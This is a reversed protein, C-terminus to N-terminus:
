ILGLIDVLNLIMSKGSLDLSRGMFPRERDDLRLGAGMMGVGDRDLIIM